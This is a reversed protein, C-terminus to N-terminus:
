RLFYISIDQRDCANQIAIHITESWNGITLKTTVAVTPYFLVYVAEPIWLYDKSHLTIECYLWFCKFCFRKQRFTFITSWIQLRNNTERQPRELIVGPHWEEPESKIKQGGKYTERNLPHPISCSSVGFGKFHGFLVKPSLQPPLRSPLPISYPHFLPFLERTDRQSVTPFPSISSIPTSRSINSGDEESGPARCVVCRGRYVNLLFQTIVTDCSLRKTCLVQYCCSSM